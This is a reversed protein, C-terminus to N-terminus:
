FSIFDFREPCLSVMRGYCWLMKFSPSYLDEAQHANSAIFSDVMKFPLMLAESESPNVYDFLLAASFCFPKNNQARNGTVYM